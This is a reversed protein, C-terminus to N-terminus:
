LYRIPKGARSREYGIDRLTHDNAEALAAATRYADWRASLAAALWALMRAPIAAAPRRPARTTDRLVDASFNLYMPM